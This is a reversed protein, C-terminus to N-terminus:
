WQKMRFVPEQSAGEDGIAIELYEAGPGKEFVLNKARKYPRGNPGIGTFFATATHKGENLNTIYLKQIGGRMMAERKSIRISILLLWGIM